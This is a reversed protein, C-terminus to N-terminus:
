DMVVTKVCLIGPLSDQILNWSDGNNDSGYLKGNRTGFYIGGTDTTDSTLADRLIVEYANEQPLGETLAEWSDGEDRSRYVRLKGECTYRIGDSDLPIIFLDGTQSVTIGFGFNSPLGTEIEQWSNGANRSRYVGHHNQLFLTEKKKPHRVIKHVCQGFEPYKDPLFYASVGTNTVNWNEGGDTSQYVGGTSIAIKLSNPDAADTLITHVALGGFGPTWQERHPHNWLERMLSWTEGADDSKFIAAPAVGCYLTKDDAAATIQWINELSNETDIPFKIRMEEPSDWTEGFDYSRVLEAGFHMSMPAAWLCDRGGRRDLLMAYVSRGAFYPGNIEWDDSLSKRNLVFAGKSTGVLLLIEQKTMNSSLAPCGTRKQLILRCSAAMVATQFGANCLDLM